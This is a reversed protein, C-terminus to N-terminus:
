AKILSLFNNFEENWLCQKNVPILTFILYSSSEKHPDKALCNSIYHTNGQVGKGRNSM